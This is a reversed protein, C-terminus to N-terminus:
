AKWCCGGRNIPPNTTQWDTPSSLTPQEQKFSDNKLNIWIPGGVADPNSFCNNGDCFIQSAINCTLKKAFGNFTPDLDDAVCVTTSLLISAIGTLYKKM